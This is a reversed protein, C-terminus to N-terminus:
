SIGGPTWTGQENWEGIQAHISLVKAFQYYVNGWAFILNDALNGWGNFVPCTGWQVTNGKIALGVRFLQVGPQGIPDLEGWQLQINYTIDREQNYSPSISASGSAQASRIVTNSSGLFMYLFDFLTNAKTLINYGTFSPETALDAFSYTPTWDINMSGQAPLVLQASNSASLALAVTATFRDGAVLGVGFYDPTTAIIGYDEGIVLNGSDQTIGDLKGRLADLASENITSLDIHAGTTLSGETTLVSTATNVLPLPYNSATLNVLDPGGAVVFDCTGATTVEFTFESGDTASGGASIVATNASVTVSGAGVLQLTHFGLALAITENVPVTPTPYLQTYGGGTLMGQPHLGPIGPGPFEVVAASVSDNYNSILKFLMDTDFIGDGPVTGPSYSLENIINRIIPSIM